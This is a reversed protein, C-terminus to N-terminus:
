QIESPNLWFPQLKKGRQIGPDLMFRSRHPLVCEPIDSENKTKLKQLILQWFERGESDHNLGINAIYRLQKVVRERIALQSVKAANVFSSKLLQAACRVANPEYQNNGHLLLIVLEDDSIEERNITIESGSKTLNRYHHCGRHVALHMMDYVSNLGLKKAKRM